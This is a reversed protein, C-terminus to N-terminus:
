VRPRKMVVKDLPDAQVIPFSARWKPVYPLRAVLDRAVDQVLSDFDLWKQSQQFVADPFNLSTFDRTCQAAQAAPHFAEGDAYRVPYVLSPVQPPLAVEAERSRFSEWETMCWPSRFYDASWVALLLKSRKLKNKLDRNWDAGEAILNDYYVTVPQASIENLRSKLRPFFHNRVWLGVTDTRRYSLFIENEYGM